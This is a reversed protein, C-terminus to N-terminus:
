GQLKNKLEDVEAKLEKIAEILLGAINGYAVSMKGDPDVRVLEPVVQEVEQAIVGIHTTKDIISDFKYGNLKLVTNLSNDLKQINTKFRRDSTATVNVATVMGTSPNFYIASTTSITPTQNSGASAM